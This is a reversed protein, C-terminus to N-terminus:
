ESAQESGHPNTSIKSYTNVVIITVLFLSSPHTELASLLTITGTFQTTLAFMCEHIEVTGCLLSCLSHVLGHVSCTLFTLMAFPLAASYTPAFLCLSRSLPGNFIWCYFCVWHRFNRMVCASGSGTSIQATNLVHTIGISM